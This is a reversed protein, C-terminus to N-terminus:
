VRIRIPGAPPRQVTRSFPQECKHVARVVMGIPAMRAFRDNVQCPSVMVAVCQVCIAANVAANPSVPAAIAWLVSPVVLVRSLALTDFEVTSVGEDPAITVGSSLASPIPRFLARSPTRLPSSSADGDFSSASLM